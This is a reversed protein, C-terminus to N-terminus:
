KKVRLVAIKEVIDLLEDLTDNEYSGLERSLSGYYSNFQKQLKEIKKQNKNEM